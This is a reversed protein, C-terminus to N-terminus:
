VGFFAEEGLDGFPAQLAANEAGEGIELGGDVPEDSLVVL